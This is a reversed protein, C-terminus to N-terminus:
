KSIVKPYFKRVQVVFAGKNNGELVSAAYKNQGFRPANDNEDIGYVIVSAHEQLRDADVTEALVTLNFRHYKEYDLDANHRVAIM